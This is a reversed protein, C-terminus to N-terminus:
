PTDPGSRSRTGRPAPIRLLPEGGANLWDTIHAEPDDLADESVVRGRASIGATHVTEPDGSVLPHWWALGRGESVRRYGCSKPLWYTRPVDAATLQVCDPVRAKRNEYDSCRCSACDLLECAVDTFAVEGTDVDELKHLCCLGCGDCLSEWEAETMEVLRKREWFPAEPAETGPPAAPTDPATM